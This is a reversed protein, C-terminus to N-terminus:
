EARDQSGEENLQRCALLLLHGNPGGLEWSDPVGRSVGHSVYVHMCGPTRAYMHACAYGRM